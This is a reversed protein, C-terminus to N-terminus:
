LFFAHVRQWTFKELYWCQNGLLFVRCLWSRVHLVWNHSSLTWCLIVVYWSVRGIGEVETKSCNSIQKRNPVWFPQAWAMKVGWFPPCPLPHSLSWLGRAECPVAVWVGESLPFWYWLRLRARAQCLIEFSCFAEEQRFIVGQASYWLEGWKICADASPIKGELGEVDKELM